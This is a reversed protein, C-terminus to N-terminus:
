VDFRARALVGHLLALYRKDTQGNRILEQVGTLASRKKAFVLVGSTDRDLRHVLELSQQ